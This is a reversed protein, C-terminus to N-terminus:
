QGQDPADIAYGRARLRELYGGERTLKALPVIALTTENSALSKAAASMWSAYLQERIDTPIIERAVESG